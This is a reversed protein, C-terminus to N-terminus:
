HRHPRKVNERVRITARPTAGFAFALCAGLVSVLIWGDLTM